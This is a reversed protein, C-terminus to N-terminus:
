HHKVWNRITETFIGLVIFLIGAAVGLWLWHRLDAQSTTLQTLFYVSAGLFLGGVVLGVLFDELKPWIWEVM